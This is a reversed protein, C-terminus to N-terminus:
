IGQQLNSLCVVPIAVYRLGVAVILKLALVSTSFWSGAIGLRRAGPGSGTNPITKQIKTKARYYDSNLPSRIWYRGPCFWPRWCTAFFLWMMLITWILLVVGIWYLVQTGKSLHRTQGWGYHSCCMRCGQWIGWDRVPKLIKVLKVGTLCFYIEFLKEGQVSNLELSKVLLKACLRSLYWPLVCVVKLSSWVSECKLHWQAKQLGYRFWACVYSVDSCFASEVYSPETVFQLANSQFPETGLHGQM